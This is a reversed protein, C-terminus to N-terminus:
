STFSVFHGAPAAWGRRNFCLNVGLGLGAGLPGTLLGQCRGPVRARAAAPGNRDAAGAPLSSTRTQEQRGPMTVRVAHARDTAPPGAAGRRRGPRQCGPRGFKLNIMRLPGKRRCDRYHVSTLLHMGVPPRHIRTPSGNANVAAVASRLLAVPRARRAARSILPCKTLNQLSATLDRDNYSLLTTHKGTPTPGPLAERM